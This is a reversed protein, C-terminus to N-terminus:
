LAEIKTIVMHMFQRFGVFVNGQIGIYHYRLTSGSPLAYTDVRTPSFTSRDELQRIQNSALLNFPQMAAPTNSNSDWRTIGRTINNNQGEGYYSSQRRNTYTIRINSYQSRFNAATGFEWDALDLGVGLMTREMGLFPNGQLFINSGQYLITNLPADGWVGNGTQIRFNTRSTGNNVGGSFHTAPVFGTMVASETGANYITYVSPIASKGRLNDMSITGSPVGALNRVDTDNLTISSGSARSLEINVDNMTITGTPLAM